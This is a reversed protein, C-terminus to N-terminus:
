KKIVFVKLPKLDVVDCNGEIKRFQKTKGNETKEHHSFVVLIKRQVGTFLKHLGDREHLWQKCKSLLTIKEGFMQTILEIVCNEQKLDICLTILLTATSHERQQFNEM